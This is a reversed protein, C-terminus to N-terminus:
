VPIDKRSVHVYNPSTSSADQKNLWELYKPLTNGQENYKDLAQRASDPILDTSFRGILEYENLKVDPTWKDRQLVFVYSHLLIAELAMMSGHERILPIDVAGLPVNVISFMWGMLPYIPHLNTLIKHKVTQQDSSLYSWRITHQQVNPHTFGALGFDTAV